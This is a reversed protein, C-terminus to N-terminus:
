KMVEFSVSFQNFVDDEWLCPFLYTLHFCRPHHVLGVGKALGSIAQFGDIQITYVRQHSLQYATYACLPHTYAPHSDTMALKWKNRNMSKIKQPPLDWILIKDTTPSASEDWRNMDRVAPSHTLTAHARYHSVM